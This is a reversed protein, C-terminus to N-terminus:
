TWRKLNTNAVTTASTGTCSASSQGYWTGVTTTVPPVLPRMVDRIRYCTGSKSMRAAAWTMDTALTWASVSVRTDTVISPSTQILYGLSGEVSPMGVGLCPAAGGNIYRACRFSNTNSYIAKAGILASRLDSQAARNFARNRAGLFTPIAIAILIGIVLVVVM